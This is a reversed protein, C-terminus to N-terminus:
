ETTHNGVTDDGHGCQLLPQYDLLASLLAIGWPTMATAANFCGGQLQLDVSAPLNGVTDDGHGCQLRPSASSDNVPAVIGWPTMATAANFSM